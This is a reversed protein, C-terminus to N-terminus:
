FRVVARKRGLQLVLADPDALVRDPKFPCRIRVEKSEGAGLTIGVRAERYDASPKGHDDFREGAAAAVEVEM